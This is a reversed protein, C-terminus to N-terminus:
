LRRGLGGARPEQARSPFHDRLSHASRSGPACRGRSPRRRYPGATMAGRTLHAAGFAGTSTGGALRQDRRRGGGVSRGCSPSHGDHGGHDQPEPARRRWRGSPIPPAGLLVSALEELGAQRLPVQRLKQTAM